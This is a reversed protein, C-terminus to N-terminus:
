KQLAHLLVRFMKLSFIIFKFLLWCQRGRVVAATMVFAKSSSMSDGCKVDILAARHMKCDLKM